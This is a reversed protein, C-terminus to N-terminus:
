SPSIQINIFTDNDKEQKQKKGTFNWEALDFLYPNADDVVDVFGQIRHISPTWRIEEKSQNERPNFGGIALRLRVSPMKGPRIGDGAIPHTEQLTCCQPSPTKGMGRHLHDSTHALIPSTSKFTILFLSQSPLICYDQSRLVFILPM